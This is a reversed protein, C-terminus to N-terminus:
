SKAPQILRSTNPRSGSLGRGRTTYRNAAEITDFIAVRNAVQRPEVELRLFLKRGVVGTIAEVIDAVHERDRREQEFLVHM